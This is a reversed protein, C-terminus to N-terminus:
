VPYVVYLGYAAYSAKFVKTSLITAPAEDPASAASSPLATLSTVKLGKTAAPAPSSVVPNTSTIGSSGIITGLSPSYFPSPSPSSSSTYNASDFFFCLSGEFLKAMTKPTTNPITPAQM